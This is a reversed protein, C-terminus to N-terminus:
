HRRRYRIAFEYGSAPPFLEAALRLRDALAPAALLPYERERLDAYDLDMALSLMYIALTDAFAAEFFVTGARQDRAAHTDLAPKDGLLTASAALMLGNSRGQDRSHDRAQDRSEDRSGDAVHDRPTDRSDDRSSPAPQIGAPGEIARLRAEYADQSTEGRVNARAQAWALEQFRPPVGAADVAQHGINIFFEFALAFRDQMLRASLFTYEVGNWLLNRHCTARDGLDMTFGSAIETEETEGLALPVFYYAHGALTAAVSPPVAEVIQRLSESSVETYGYSAYQLGNAASTLPTTRVVQQAPLLGTQAADLM